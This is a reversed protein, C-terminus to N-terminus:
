MREISSMTATETERREDRPSMMQYSIWKAEHANITQRIDADIQEREMWETIEADTENVEDDNDSADIFISTQDSIEACLITNEMLVFISHLDSFLMTEVSDDDNASELFHRWSDARLIIATPFLITERINSTYQRVSNNITLAAGGNWKVPVALSLSTVIILFPMLFKAHSM